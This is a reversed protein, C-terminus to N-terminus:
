PIILFHTLSIIRWDFIWNIREFKSWHKELKKKTRWLYWIRELHTKKAEKSNLSCTYRQWFWYWFLKHKIHKCISIPLLFSVFLCCCCCYQQCTIATEKKGNNNRNFYFLKKKMSIAKTHAHSERGRQQKKKRQVIPVFIQM